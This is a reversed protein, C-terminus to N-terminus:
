LPGWEVKPPPSACDLCVDFGNCTTCTAFVEFGALGGALQRGCLDCSFVNAAWVKFPVPWTPRGRWPYPGPWFSAALFVVSLTSACRLRQFCAPPVRVFCHSLLAKPPPLFLSCQRLCVCVDACASHLFTKLAVM